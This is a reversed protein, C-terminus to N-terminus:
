IQILTVTRTISKAHAKSSTYLIDISFYYIIFYIYKM